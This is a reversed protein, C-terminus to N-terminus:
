RLPRPGDVTLVECIGPLRGALQRCEDDTGQLRVKM